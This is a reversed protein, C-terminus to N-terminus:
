AWSQQESHLPNPVTSTEQLFFPPFLLPSYRFDELTEENQCKPIRQWWSVNSIRFWFHSGEGCQPNFQAQGWIARFGLMQSHTKGTLGRCVFRLDRVILSSVTHECPWDHLNARSSSASNTESAYFRFASHYMFNAAGIWFWDLAVVDDIIFSSSNGLCWQIMKLLTSPISDSLFWLM